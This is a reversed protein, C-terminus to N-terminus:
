PTVPPPAVPLADTLGKTAVDLRGSLDAEAASLQDIMAQISPNDTVQGKLVAVATEMVTIAGQVSTNATALAADVKAQLDSPLAM